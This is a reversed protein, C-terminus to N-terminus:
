YNIFKSILEKMTLSIITLLLAVKLRARDSELVPDGEKETHSKESKGKAFYELFVM